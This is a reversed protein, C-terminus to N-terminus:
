LFHEKLFSLEREASFSPRLNVGEPKVGLDFLFLYREEYEQFLRFSLLISIFGKYLFIM